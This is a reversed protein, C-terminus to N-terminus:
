LLHMYTFVHTCIFSIVGGAIISHTGLLVTPSWGQHPSALLVQQLSQYSFPM